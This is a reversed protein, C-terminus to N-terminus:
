KKLKISKHENINGIGGEFFNIEIRGTFKKLMKMKLYKILFEM